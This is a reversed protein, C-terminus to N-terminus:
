GRRHWTVWRRCSCSRWGCRSSMASCLKRDSDINDCLSRFVHEVFFCGSVARYGREDPPVGVLFAAFYSFSPSLYFFPEVEQVPFVLFADYQGEQLRSLGVALPGVSFDVPLPVLAVLLGDPFQPLFVVFIHTGPRDDLVERNVIDPFLSFPEFLDVLVVVQTHPQGLLGVVRDVHRLQCAPLVQRHHEVGTSRDTGIIGFADEEARQILVTQSVGPM